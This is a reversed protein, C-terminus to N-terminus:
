HEVWKKTCSNIDAVVEKGSQYRKEVDKALLKDAIYVCCDPVNPLLEKPSVHPTNAINFMLTAISDGQFPKEGTILEFFVVGLSFLDSRGDVKKGLVQEPSMYSPTGLIVGTQTKSTAIVRAIGFDTIKVEGGKLLMINSPKIDRHVIGRSQAYDLGGAVAAIIRLAEKLPLKKDSSSVASLDKGELLEMAVYAVDYDEGADYITVINPHSLTGAAEAERFFRKKVEDLQEPDIEDFRMTKIAVMRNIKPDKGLFVTGMAGHGLEKQIEYRGLTPRTEAGEMLITAEKKASAAGFIMTDGATKLRKIREKIDKFNGAKLIHEHVAVAKNFMRKREFDLGLNYLLEKVAEDEVPCKRFKEFALDLMGQGQFSLGLMKNTEISDTEVLEKRRETVMYRKSMMVTYGAFLLLVPSLMMIWYGNSTFLYTAAGSWILLFIVSIVASIGAKLRPIIFSIFVGFFAMAGMEAYLAWEPRSIFNRSLLNEIVNAQIEIAPFTHAAPTVQLTAHGTATHGILVIKDKFSEPAVKSNIVDVFSYYPFTNFKGNYSIFMRQQRDSPINIKGIRLGKSINIDSMGYNLYKMVAHLAFSPFIRGKYNIFLPERRITGDEDAILNMHGLALSGSLFDQIPAEAEAANIYSGYPAERSNKKLHEGLQGPDPSSMQNSITFYLPLVVNKAAYISATLKTDSDLRQEAEGLLNYIGSLHVNAQYKPLAEVEKKLARIEILGSNLDPETYLINVGIIKAGYGSLLGIMEAIYVRPWPWRGISAISVDDITVIVVPSSAKRQRLKIMSDYAKYELLRLPDWELFFGGSILLTLLIGILWDPFITKIRKM